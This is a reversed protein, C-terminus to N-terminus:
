IRQYSSILSTQEELQHGIHFKFVLKKDHHFDLNQIFTSYASKNM